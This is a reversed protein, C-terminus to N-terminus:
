IPMSLACHPNATPMSTNSAKSKRYQADRRLCKGPARASVSSRHRVPENHPCTSNFRFKVDTVIPVVSQM